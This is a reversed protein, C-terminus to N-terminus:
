MAVGFSDVFFFFFFINVVEGRKATNVNRKKKRKSPVWVSPAGRLVDSLVSIVSILSHRSKVSVVEQMGSSSLFRPLSLESGSNAMVEFRSSYSSSSVVFVGSM